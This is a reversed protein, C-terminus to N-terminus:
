SRQRIKKQIMGCYWGQRVKDEIESTLQAMAEPVMDLVHPGREIARQMEDQTWQKGTNTSCGNTACELLCGAAPHHLALGSPCMSNRHSAPGQKPTPISFTGEYKSWYSIEQQEDMKITEKTQEGSM